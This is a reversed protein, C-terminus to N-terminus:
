HLNLLNLLYKNLVMETGPLPGPVLFVVSVLGPLTWMGSCRGNYPEAGKSTNTVVLRLVTTM